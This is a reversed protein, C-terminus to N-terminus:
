VHVTGAAVCLRQVAGSLGAFVGADTGTMWAQARLALVADFLAERRDVDLHAAVEDLLLIPAHGRAAAQLRAQALVIAVLLAKQEGTSCLQAPQGDSAHGPRRFIVELDSRHPGAEAAAPDSRARDLAQRLRDEADVAPMAALWGDVEGTLGLDASPFPGAADALARNLREVMHSRAAAVAVGYRALTDHLAAFWTPDRVNDRVLRARQRLARDYAATRGAHDPDLAVTLRDLFKRRSAPGDAFLRDMAPTLWVVGLRRALAAQGRQALGDIHVVRKDSFTGHTAPALGTGLDVPGDPTFLHAAVAWPQSPTAQCTVAAARAGRLGRGPALFSIAELLNTKGAGNAGTIVVPRQDFALRLDPYNRFATLVLRGITM